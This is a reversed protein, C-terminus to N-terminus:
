DQGAILESVRKWIIGAITEKKQTGDVVLWRVPEDKAMELYGQRVRRHFNISETEFRDPRDHIKRKFGEEPPMDLFITLDPTLGGTAISNITKVMEIDIGRGYGQYATTSDYFRDCIVTRGTQLADAIIEKVLQARSVNFMLLEAIPSIDVNTTWKLIRDIRKGLVTVGPEHTLVVSVALESLRRYLIKAQISKGSGEGGEFTIFLAM